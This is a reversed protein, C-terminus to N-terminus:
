KDAFVANLEARLIKCDYAFNMTKSSSLFRFCHVSYFLEWVNGLDLNYRVQIDNGHRSKIAIFNQEIGAM